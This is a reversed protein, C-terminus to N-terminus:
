HIYLHQTYGDSSPAQLRRKLHSSTADLSANLSIIHLREVAQDVLLTFDFSCPLFVLQSAFSPVPSAIGPSTLGPISPVPLAQVRYSAFSSSGRLILGWSERQRFTIAATGQM